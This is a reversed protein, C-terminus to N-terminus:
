LPIVILVSQLQSIDNTMIAVERWGTVVSLPEYLYEVSSKTRMQEGLECLWFSTKLEGKTRPRQYRCHCRYTDETPVSVYDSVGTCARSSCGRVYM